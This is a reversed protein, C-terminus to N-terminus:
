FRWMILKFVKHKGLGWGQTEPANDLSIEIYMLNEQIDRPM